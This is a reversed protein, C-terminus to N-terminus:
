KDTGLVQWLQDALQEAEAAAYHALTTKIDAHRMLERLQQPLIKPMLRTAFSRRLDHATAHKPEDDAAQPARTVVKAQRGIQAVIRSARDATTVQRRSGAVPFVLGVREAAPTERLFAVAEPTLPVLQDKGNKHCAGPFELMPRAKDLRVPRIATPDDWSMALAEGLRLGMTWLGRLLRKWGRAHKRGVVKVTAALMREFEELTIPRGKMTATGGTRVRPPDKAFGNEAGWGLVAHVHKVYSAATSASLGSSVMALRWRKLHPGDLQDVYKVPALRQLCAIASKVVGPRRLQPLQEDRYLQQLREWTIRKAGAPVIGAVIKAAMREAERRRIEKTSREQWGEACPEALRILWYRSRTPKVLKYKIPTTM